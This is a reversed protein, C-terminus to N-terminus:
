VVAAIKKSTPAIVARQILVPCWCCFTSNIISYFGMACPIREDRGGDFGPTRNVIAVLPGTSYWSNKLDTLLIIEEGSIIKKYGSAFPLQRQKGGKRSVM